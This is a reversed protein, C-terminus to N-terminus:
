QVSCGADDEVPASRLNESTATRKPPFDRLSVATDGEESAEDSGTLQMETMQVEWAPRGAYPSFSNALVLRQCFNRLVREAALPYTGDHAEGLVMTADGTTFPACLTPKPDSLVRISRPTKTAADYFLVVYATRDGRYFESGGGDGM